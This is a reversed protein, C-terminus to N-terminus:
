DGKNKTFFRIARWPWVLLVYDRYVTCQFKKRKNVNLLRHELTCENKKLTFLLKWTEHLSNSLLKCVKWTVKKVLFSNFTNSYKNLNISKYKHLCAKFLGECAQSTRNNSFFHFSFTLTLPQAFLFRHKKRFTEIDSISSPAKDCVVSIIKVGMFSKISRFKSLLQETKNWFM